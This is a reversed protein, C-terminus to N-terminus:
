KKREPGQPKPAASHAQVSPGLQTEGITGIGAGMVIPM